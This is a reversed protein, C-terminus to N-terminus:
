KLMGDLRQTVEIYTGAPDTLFAVDAGITDIHRPEVDFKYGLSKLHDGFAKLDAVDFGIHDIAGGKSGRPAPTGARVPLIDVRGGSVLASPLNRREGAEAGFVNVYWQQLAKADTASVHYHHFVIPQKQDKDTLIEVRVGDPLDALIQGNEASEFFIRAGAALLKQKYAAYDKVQFGVHNASTDISPAEPTGQRFLVIVGPFLVFNFTGLKGTVGGLSQWLAMDKDVDPVLLHVHGIRVGATGLPALQAYTPAAILLSLAVAFLSALLKTSCM